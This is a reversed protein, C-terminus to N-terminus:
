GEEENDDNNEDDSADSKMKTGCPCRPVGVALWKATTRVTYGCSPCEVKLMRTGQKKEGDGPRLMAHPYPGLDRAMEVLKTRLEAGPGASRMKGELGVRLALRKFTPGHGSGPTAVHVLEHVLTGLVEVASEEIPSIFVEARGARSATRSWAQGLATRKGLPWGCAVRITSADLDASHRAFTPLLLLVAASLWEERTDYTM